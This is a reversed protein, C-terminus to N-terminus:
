IVLIGSLELRKIRLPLNDDLRFLDRFKKIADQENDAFVLANGYFTRSPKEGYEFHEVHMEFITM